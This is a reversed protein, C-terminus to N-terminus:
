GHDVVVVEADDDFPNVVQHPVDDPIIFADGANWETIEEGMEIKINGSAVYFAHGDYCVHDAKYGSPYKVVRLRQNDTELWKSLAGTSAKDPTFKEDNKSIKVKSLNSNSM